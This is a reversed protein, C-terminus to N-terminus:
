NRRRPLASLLLTHERTVHRRFQALLSEALMGAIRPDTARHLATVAARLRAHDRRLTYAWWPRGQVRRWQLEEAAVAPLLRGTLFALLALRAEASAGPDAAVANMAAVRAALTETLDDATRWRAAPGGATTM